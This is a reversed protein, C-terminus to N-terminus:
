LVSRETCKIKKERLIIDHIRAILVIKETYGNKIAEKEYQRVWLKVELMNKFRGKYIARIFEQGEPMVMVIYKDKLTNM